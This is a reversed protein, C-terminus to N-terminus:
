HCNHQIIYLLILFTHQHTQWSIANTDTGEVGEVLAFVTALLLCSPAASSAPDGYRRDLRFLRAGLSYQRTTTEGSFEIM